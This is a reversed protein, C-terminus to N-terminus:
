DAGVRRRLLEFVLRAAQIEGGEPRGPKASSSWNYVDFHAWAGTKRVFRKLFMAAVIAGAFPGSSVNNLDATKSDLLAGYPAWLPLRWVPDAAAEGAAAIDAALKEDNTFYAPLDPGLAVRAAGTLTAFDFLLDPEDEDALALADALILRGEADTNGIEVTLGARSSYVDGPRFSQASVSNEVIPVIVRLRVPLQARMIMAAAALATAAGGMDKKMLLMSAGPKIDLGGTDFCVGKGVLTVKPGGKRPGWSFDVIRPGEAAGKGVAHVLPFGSKLQAGRVVKARAKYQEALALAAQELADPGMDNAPTNILDRGLAVANAITEVRERKAGRPAELVVDDAKAKRYRAFKYASLLFALEAHDPAEANEAVRYRGPPLLTALRGFAMPDVRDAGADALGFLVAAIAGKATPAILHAGPAGDYGTATAYARAEAPLADLTARLRARSTPAIPISNRTPDGLVLAM